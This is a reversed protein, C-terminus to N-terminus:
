GIAQKTELFIDTSMRMKTERHMHTKKRAILFFFNEKISTELLEIMIAKTHNEKHEDQKPTISNGPDTQQYFYDFKSFIQGNTIWINKGSVRWVRIM